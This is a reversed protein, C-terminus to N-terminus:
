QKKVLNLLQHIIRDQQFMQDQYHVIMVTLMRVIM